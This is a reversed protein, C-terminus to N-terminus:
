CRGVKAFLRRILFGRILSAATFIAGIEINAAWNAKLGYHPLVLVQLAMSTGFGALTSACTEIWSMTRTQM